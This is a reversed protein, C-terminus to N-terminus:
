NEIESKKLDNHSEGVNVNKDSNEKNITSTSNEHKDDNSDKRITSTASKDEKDLDNDEDDHNERDIGMDDEFNVRISDTLIEVRIKNALKIVEQFKEHAAEYDKKTIMLNGEDLMKEAEILKEDVNNRTSTALNNKEEQYKTKVSDLIKEAVDQKNLASVEPTSTADQSDDGLNLEMEQRYIKIKDESEKLSSIFDKTTEKTSISVSGERIARELINQHAAIASELRTALEASSVANDKNESLSKLAETFKDIQKNVSTQVEDKTSTSFNGQTMVKQAEELRREVLREQWATNAKNSVAFLGVVPENISTKVTYLADGPIANEAVVSTGGSVALMIAIILATMYNNQKILLNFYNEVGSMYYLRSPISNTVDSVQSSTIGSIINAKMSVKENESLKLSKVTKIINNLENDM